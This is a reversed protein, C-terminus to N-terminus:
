LALIGYAAGILSYFMKFRETLEKGASKRLYWQLRRAMKKRASDADTKMTRAKMVHNLLKDVDKELLEAEDKLKKLRSNDMDKKMAEEIDPIFDHVYSVQSQFAKIEAPADKITVVFDYLKHTARFSFGIIGLADAPSLM